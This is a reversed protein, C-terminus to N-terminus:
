SPTTGGSQLIFAMITMSSQSVPIQSVHNTVELAELTLGIATAAMVLILLYYIVLDLALACRKRVSHVDEGTFDWWIKFPKGWRPYSNDFGVGREDLEGEDFFNGYFDIQSRQSEILDLFQARIGRIRRFTVISYILLIGSVSLYVPVSPLVDSLRFVATAAIALVLAFTRFLDHSLDNMLKSRLDAFESQIKFASETLEQRFEFFEDVSEKMYYQRNSEASSRIEDADTIIEDLSRAYLTAVNRVVTIRSDANSDYVWSYLSYLGGVLENTINILKTNGNSTISLEGSPSVSIEGEIYQRGRIRVNWTSHGRFEATNALSLVCFIAIYPNFLRRTKRKLESSSQNPMQFFSPPLFKQDPEQILTQRRIQEMQKTWDGTTSTPYAELPLCSLGSVTLSDGQIFSDLSLIVILSNRCGEELLFERIKTPSTCPIQQKFTQWYIYFHVSLSDDNIEDAIAQEFDTTRTTYGININLEDESDTVRLTDRIEGKSSLADDRVSSLADILDDNGRYIERIQPGNV